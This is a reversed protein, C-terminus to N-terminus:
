DLGHLRTGNECIYIDEVVTVTDVPIRVTLNTTVISDYGFTSILMREYQGSITWGQYSEGEEITINETFYAPSVHLNTTVISDCGISSVLVRVYQGATTWEQYSEGEEIIVTEIIHILTGVHLNTTVISDRGDSLQFFRVYQGPETWGLYNDGECISKEETFYIPQSTTPRPTYVPKSITEIVPNNPETIENTETVTRAYNYIRVEDISGEYLLTPSVEDRGAGILLNYGEGSEITGSAANKAILRIILTFSKKLVM